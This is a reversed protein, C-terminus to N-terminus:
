GDRSAPVTSVDTKEPYARALNEFLIRRRAPVLRLYFRGLRRGLAQRAGPPLSRLAGAGVRFLAHEARDRLESRASM